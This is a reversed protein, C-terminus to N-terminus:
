PHPVGDASLVFKSASGISDSRLFIPALAAAAAGSNLGAARGDAGATM